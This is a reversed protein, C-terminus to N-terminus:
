KVLDRHTPEPKSPRFHELHDLTMSLGAKTAVEVVGERVARALLEPDAEARLNLIIQGSQVPEDLQVSLEPKYDSRVLNIVAVYEGLTGDPTFNRHSYRM